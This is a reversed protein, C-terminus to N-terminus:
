AVVRAAHLIRALEVPQVLPQELREVVATLEIQRLVPHLAGVRDADRDALRRRPAAVDLRRPRLDLLRCPRKATLTLRVGSTATQRRRACQENPFSPM